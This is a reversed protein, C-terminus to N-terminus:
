LCGTRMSHRSLLSTLVPISLNMVSFITEESAIATFNKRLYSTFDLTVQQAKDPDQKCLYYISMMTNYIFHPRIQLVNISAKQMAIERQQHMFQDMNDALILGFMVLGFLVMCLVAYVEAEFFMHFFLSITMPLLYLLLALFYRKSLKNRRKLLGGINLILVVVLPSLWLAFLSGRIYKNDPTVCYIVDTFQGIIFMIYYVALLVAVAKFLPSSKLDEGCSHLLFVTPMFMLSSLLLGEFFYVIREATAMNPDDWFLTALFCTVSCMLLLSFLIIFYRKNWRDTVPIMASFIVGLMMMVLIAGLISYSVILETM